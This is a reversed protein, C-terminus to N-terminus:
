RNISAVCDFGEPYREKLKKINMQLVDELDYGIVFATFALYWAVDGLEEALHDKNLIHGQFIHKKVIDICEGSEGNLGMVGEILMDKPEMDGRMTRLIGRQYENCNM